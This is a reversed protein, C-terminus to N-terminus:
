GRSEPFTGQHPRQEGGASVDFVLRKGKVDDLKYGCLEEMYPNFRIIRGETDLVLIIIQATDILSESFDKEKRLAEENQKLNRFLLDYPKVLGTEIISKYILYYSIIKLYHGVMNSFGYAHIYFTFVLEEAITIAMAAALLRFM